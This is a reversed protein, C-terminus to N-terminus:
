RNGKGAIVVAGEAVTTRWMHPLEQIRGVVAALRDPHPHRRGSIWNELTRRSEGIEEAVRRVSGRSRVLARLDTAM